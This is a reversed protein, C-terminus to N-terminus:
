PRAELERNFATETAPQRRGVGLVLRPSWPLTEPPLASVAAIAERRITALDDVLGAVGVTALRYDVFAAAGPWPLAVEVEAVEPRLGAGVLLARVAAVSGVREGLEDALLGAATRDSGAHRGVVAMVAEKPPYSAEPRAWTLVGVVPAVRAMEAVAAGPDPFHNIGFACGAAAFRGDRFPLREADGQVRVPVPNHRLQAASLDLAVPAPLLRGLAGSGAAVDLVPGGAGALARALPRALYAYVLADASRAFSAASADYARAFLRKASRPERTV